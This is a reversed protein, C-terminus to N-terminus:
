FETAYRDDVIVSLSSASYQYLTRIINKGSFFVCRYDKFWNYQSTVNEREFIYRKITILSLRLIKLIKLLGQDFM